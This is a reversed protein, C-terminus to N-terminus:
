KNKEFLLDVLKPRLIVKLFGIFDSETVSIKFEKGAPRIEFGKKMSKVPHLIIGDTLSKTTRSKLYQEMENMMEEPISIEIGGENIEHSWKEATVEILRAIFRNDSFIESVPEEVIKLLIAEEVEQKLTNMAQRFSMKMGSLTKDMIEEAKKEADSIIAEAEKRAEKLIKESEARAGSIIIEAEENGKSVGERYIKETLEQLKNQM